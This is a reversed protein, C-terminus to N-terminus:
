EKLIVLKSINVQRPTTCDDFKVLCFSKDVSLVIGKGFFKHEVITNQVFNDITENKTQNQKDFFAFYDTPFKIEPIFEVYDKFEESFPSIDYNVNIKSYYDSTLTFNLTKRARTISVYLLRREEEIGEETNVLKSPFYASTFKAIIIHDYESGKSYHSTMLKVTNKNQHSEYYEQYSSINDVFDKLSTNYEEIYKNNKDIDECIDIFTQVNAIRETDNIDELKSKYNSKTYVFYIIDKIYSNTKDNGFESNLISINEKLKEIFDIFKTIKTTNFGKTTSLQKLSAYLSLKNFSSYVKIKELSKDGVGFPMNKRIYDFSIDDEYLALNLYSLLLKIEVRQYFSTGGLVRYPIKNRILFPEISSSVKNARYLIAISSYKANYNKVLDNILKVIMENEDEEKKFTFVKPAYNFYDKTPVIETKIRNKNHSILSNAVNVIELHSRFNEKMFHTKVNEFKKDFNIFIDVNADNFGYIAQDIDGVVFLNKHYESLISLIEFQIVNTDQFEDVFLYEFQQQTKLRIEKKNNLIYLTFLLLDNFTLYHSIKQFKLFEFIYEKGDFKSNDLKVSDNSLYSIFENVNQKKYAHIDTRIDSLRIKTEAKDIKLEKRIERLKNFYDTEDMIKYNEEFHLSFINQKLFNACFSHITCINRSYFDSGLYERVRNLMEEKAKNTFTLLLINNPDVGLEKILFIYRLTLTNTKGTGPGAVVRIYGETDKIIENQSKTLNCILDNFNM